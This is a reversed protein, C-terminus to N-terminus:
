DDRVMIAPVPKLDLRSVSFLEKGVVAKFTEWPALYNKLKVLGSFYKSADTLTTFERDEAEYYFTDYERRYVVDYLTNVFKGRLVVGDNFYYKAYDKRPVSPKNYVKKEHLTTEVGGPIYTSSVGTMRTKKTATIGSKVSVRMKSKYKEVLEDDEEGGEVAIRRARLAVVKEEYERIKVDIDDLEMRRFNAVNGKAELTRVEEQTAEMERQLRVLREQPTEPALVAIFENGDASPETIPEPEPEVYEVGVPTDPELTVAVDPTVKKNKKMKPPAIKAAPVNKIEDTTNMTETKLFHNEASNKGSKKTKPLFEPHESKEAEKQNSLFEPIDTQTLEAVPSETITELQMMRPKSQVSSM